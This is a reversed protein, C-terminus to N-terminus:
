RGGGGGGGQQQHIVISGGGVATADNSDDSSGRKNDYVVVDTGADSYWIKVRFQDTDAGGTLAGDIGVIFFEYPEGNQAVAGNLLGEGQFQARPGAIVLWDYNTSQFELDVTKFQFQASGDPVNRGRVYRSVFGFTATGTAGAEDLYAGPPSDFWGGGTVFGGSPDYVVVYEFVETDMSGDGDVTVTVTYVGPTDYAHSGVSARIPDTTEVMSTTGDGWDFTTTHGVARADEFTVALEVATDIAVPDVPGVIGTIVPAVYYDFTTVTQKGSADM